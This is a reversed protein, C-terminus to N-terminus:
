GNGRGWVIYVCIYIYNWVFFLGNEDLIVM